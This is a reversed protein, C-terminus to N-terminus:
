IGLVVGDIVCELFFDCCDCVGVWFYFCVLVLLFISM